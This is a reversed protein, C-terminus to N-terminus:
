KQQAEITKRLERYKDGMRKRTPADNISAGFDLAEDLADITRAETLMKLVQAETPEHGDDLVTQAQAAPPPSAAPPASAKPTADEKGKETPTAQGEIQGTQDDHGDEVQTVVMDGDLTAMKGQDAADSLEVAAALEISMPLYNCMRRIITKRVMQDYDTVWPGKTASQSRARIREVEGITMWEFHHGGDKFHAVGYVLRPAGRDGTLNPKHICKTDLGLELEFEDNEYAIHTEISTVEGSRRALAILGKYGPVLTAEYSSKRSNFFPVLYAQGLVGVELGLQSAQIISGFISNPTCKQLLPSKQFETMALRVMRDPKIHAPLAAQIQGKNKELYSRFSTIQNDGEGKVATRLANSSM